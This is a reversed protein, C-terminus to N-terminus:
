WKGVNISSLEWTACWVRICHFLGAITSAQFHSYNSLTLNLPITTIACIRMLISPGMEIPKLIEYHTTHSVNMIPFPSDMLTCSTYYKTVPTSIVYSIIAVNFRSSIPCSPTTHGTMITATKASVWHISGDFIFIYWNNALLAIFTTPLTALAQLLHDM